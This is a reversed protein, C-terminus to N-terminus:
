CQGTKCALTESAWGVGCSAFAIKEMREIAIIFSNFFM